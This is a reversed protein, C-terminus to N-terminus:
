RGLSALNSNQPKSPKNPSRPTYFSQDLQKKPQYISWKEKQALKGIARSSTKWCTQDDTPFYMVWSGFVCLTNWNQGSKAVVFFNDPFEVARKRKNPHSELHTCGMTAFGTDTRCIFVANAVQLAVITNRLWRRFLISPFIMKPSLLFFYRCKKTRNLWGQWVNAFSARNVAFPHPFRLGKFSASSKWLEKIVRQFSAHVLFQSCQELGQLSHVPHELEQPPPVLVGLRLCHAFNAFFLLSM